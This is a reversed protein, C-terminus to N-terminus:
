SRCHKPRASLREFDAICRGTVTNYCLVSSHKSREEAEWYASWATLGGSLTAAAM